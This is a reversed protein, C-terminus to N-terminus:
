CVAVLLCFASSLLSFALRQGSVASRREGEWGMM